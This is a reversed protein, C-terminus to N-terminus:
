PFTKVIFAVFVVCVQLFPIFSYSLHRWHTRNRFVVVLTRTETLPILTKLNALSAVESAPVNRETWECFLFLM